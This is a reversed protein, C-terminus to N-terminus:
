SSTSAVELTGNTCDPIAPFPRSSVKQLAVSTGDGARAKRPTNLFGDPNVTIMQANELIYQMLLLSLFINTHHDFKLAVGVPFFFFLQCYIQKCLVSNSFEFDRLLM